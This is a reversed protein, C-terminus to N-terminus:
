RKEAVILSFWSANRVVYPNSFGATGLMAVFDAATRQKGRGIRMVANWLAVIPPGDRNANWLMEHIWIKGGRELLEFCKRCIALCADDSFGHLLNGVFLGDCTPLNWHPKTVDVGVVEIRREFGQWALFRRVNKLTRPLEALVVRMAAYRSAVPIAFAGSGGGLDVLCRVGDFENTKVASECAPLNRVHQNKLRRMTGYRTLLLLSLDKIMFWRTIGKPRNVYFWPISRQPPRLEDGIFFLSSRVLYKRACESLAYVGREDRVILQLSCVVGLLADAGRENLETRGRVDALTACGLSEIAEFIGGRVSWAVYQLFSCEGVFLRCGLTGLLWGLDRAEACTVAAAHDVVPETERADPIGAVIDRPLERRNM